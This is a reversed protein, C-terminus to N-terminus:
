SFHFFLWYICGIGPCSVQISKAHRYKFYLDIMFIAITIIEAINVILFYKNSIQPFSFEIVTIIVLLVLAIPVLLNDTLVEFKSAKKTKKM